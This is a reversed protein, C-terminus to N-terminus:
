GLRPLFMGSRTKYEAYASFKQELLQEEYRAKRMFLWWLACFLLLRIGNGSFVAYGLAAMLIGTYIPHRVKRYIGSRILEGQARPTPFPSLSNNLLLIAWLLIFIGSVALFAGAYQLWEPARFDFVRFHFLYLAFLVFQISVFLIDKRHLSAPMDSPRHHAACIYDFSNKKTCTLTFGAVHTKADVIM